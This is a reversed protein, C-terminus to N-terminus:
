WGRVRSYIFRFAKDAGKVGHKIDMAIKRLDGRNYELIQDSILMGILMPSPIDGASAQKAQDMMMAQGQRAFEQRMNDMEQIVIAHLTPNSHKIKILEGRRMSPPTQLLLQSAMEKGQEYVDGPTAGPNGGPGAPAGGEAPAGGSQAAQQDEMAEQQLKQIAAQEEVVRRQEEMYDIGLPRYATQKSVDMGAAAQLALAKREIDDALTVSRLNGTVSGWMFHRSLRVLLWAIVDNLGDVLAGWSKEFLRLAVPFAQISLSGKYLEAPFGIANLLEDLAQAISEKPALAKAEGGIMQYGVPFPAVQIDTINKRKKEVIQKMHGIFSGMSMTSLPDHGQPGANGAPFLVRFPVIFDLAIAEDYRRLLQIYYALKFNPMIPPISWGRIPLGALTSDRLHYIADDRFKFLPRGKSKQGKVVTDLISWPTDDIYFRQNERIRQIFTPDLELYYETRDSIPHVRLRIEKPNWRIIRVRTRDPSRRDEREFDVKEAHCKLCKGSFIGTSLDFKYEVTKCHYTSACHPCILYRDFPFYISVFVNGYVMFDDGINALEKLIHLDDMLFTKYKERESDSEGELVIETIFYRVVRRAAARYTGFTLYLYECWELIKNLDRPVYESAIDCFPNPYKDAGSRTIGSAGEWNFPGSGFSNQDSM